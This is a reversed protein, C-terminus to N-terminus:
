LIELMTIFERIAARCPPEIEAEAAARLHRTARRIDALHDLEKCRFPPEEVDMEAIHLPRHRLEGLAEDALPVVVRRLRHQEELAIAERAEQEVIVDWM